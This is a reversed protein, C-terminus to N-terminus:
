SSRTKVNKSATCTTNLSRSVPKPYDARAESSRLEIRHLEAKRTQSAFGIEQKQKEARLKLLDNLWKHFAREQMTEYRMFLSLKPASSEDGIELYHNKIVSRATAV